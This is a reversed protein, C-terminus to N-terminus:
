KLTVVDSRVWGTKEGDLEPLPALKVQYWTYNDSGTTQSIKTGILVNPAVTGIINDGIPINMGLVTTGNDVKAEERVKTDAFRSYVKNGTTKGDNKGGFTGVGSSGGDSEETDSEETDDDYGNDGDGNDKNILKYIVFGLGGAALVSVGVWIIM